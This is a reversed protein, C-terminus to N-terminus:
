SGSLISAPSSIKRNKLYGANLFSSILESITLAFLSIVALWFLFDIVLFFPNVSVCGMFANMSNCTGVNEAAFAFYPNLPVWGTIQLPYMGNSHLGVQPLLLAAAITSGALNRSIKNPMSDEKKWIPMAYIGLGVIPLWYIYDIFIGFPSLSFIGSGSTCVTGNTYGSPSTANPIQANQCNENAYSNSVPWPLGSGQTAFYSAFFLIASLSVIVTAFVLGKKRELGASKVLVFFVAFLFVFAPALFGSFGMPDDFVILIAIYIAVGIITLKLPRTSPKAKKM